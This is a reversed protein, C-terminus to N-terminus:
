ENKNIKANTPANPYLKEKMYTAPDYKKRGPRPFFTEESYKKTDFERRMPPINDWGELIFNEEIRPSGPFNIGYMERLERQYTEIHKWLHHASQMEANDRNIFCRVVLDMKKEPQNLFYSLQFKGDEIWDVCSLLVFHTFGEVDRLHTILDITNEHSITVYVFQPNQFDIESLTYKKNLQELLNKM